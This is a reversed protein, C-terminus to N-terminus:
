LTGQGKSTSDYITKLKVTHQIDNNGDGSDGMKYNNSLESLVYNQHVPKNFQEEEEENHEALKCGLNQAAQLPQKSARNQTPLRKVPPKKEIPILILPHYFM